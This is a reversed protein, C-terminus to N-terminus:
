FQNMNNVKGGGSQRIIKRAQGRKHYFYTVFRTRAEILVTRYVQNINRLDNTLGTVLGYLSHLPNVVGPFLTM